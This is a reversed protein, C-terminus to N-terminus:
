TAAAAKEALYEEMSLMTLRKYDRVAERLEQFTEGSGVIHESHYEFDIPEGNKTWQGADDETSCLYGVIAFMTEQPASIRDHDAGFLDRLWMVRWQVQRAEPATEVILDDNM